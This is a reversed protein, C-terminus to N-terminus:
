WNQRSKHARESQIEWVPEHCSLCVARVVGRRWESHTQVLCTSYRERAVRIEHKVSHVWGVPLCYSEQHSYAGTEYDQHSQCRYKPKKHPLQEVWHHHCDGSGELCQSTLSYNHGPTQLQTNALKYTKNRHRLQVVVKAFVDGGEGLAACWQTYITCSSILVHLPCLNGVHLEKTCLVCAETFFMKTYQFLCYTLDGVVCSM